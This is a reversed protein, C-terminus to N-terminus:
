WPTPEEPGECAGLFRASRRADPLGCATRVCGSSALTMVPRNTSLLERISVCLHRQEIFTPLRNTVGLGLHDAKRTCGGEEVM